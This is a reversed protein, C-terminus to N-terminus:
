ASQLKQNTIYSATLIGLIILPLISLFSFGDVVTNSISASIFEIAFGAYAWEKVREPMKPIVLALVGPIRFCTIMAGFYEPYGLHRISEKALDSNFTLAPIIGEFTFIFGTAIWFIIKNSKM